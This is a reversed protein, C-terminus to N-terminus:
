LRVHSLTGPCHTILFNGCGAPIFKGQLWEGLAIHVQGSLAGSEPITNDPVATGSADAVATLTCGPLLVDDEENATVDCALWHFTGDPPPDALTALIVSPITEVGSGGTVTGGLLVWSYGDSYVKCFPGAAAAGRYKGKAKRQAIRVGSDGYQVVIGRDSTIHRGQALAKLLEQVAMVWEVTLVTRLPAGRAVDRFAKLYERM